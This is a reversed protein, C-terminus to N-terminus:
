HVGQGLSDLLLYQNAKETLSACGSGLWVRALARQGVVAGTGFTQSIVLHRCCRFVCEEERGLRGAPGPPAGQWGAAQPLPLDSVSPRLAFELGRM